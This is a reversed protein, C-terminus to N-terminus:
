SDIGGIRATGKALLGHRRARLQDYGTAARVHALAGDTTLTTQATTAAGQATTVAGQAAAAPALALVLVGALWFTRRTQPKM